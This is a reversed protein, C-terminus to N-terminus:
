VDPTSDPPDPDPPSLWLDGARKLDDGARKVERVVVLVCIGFLIILVSLVAVKWM